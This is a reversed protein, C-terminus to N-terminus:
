LCHGLDILNQRAVLMDRSGLGGNDCALKRRRECCNFHSILLLLDCRRQLLFFHRQLAVVMLERQQLKLFFGKNSDAM